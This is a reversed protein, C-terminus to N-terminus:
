VVGADFTKICEQFGNIQASEGIEVLSTRVDNILKWGCFFLAPSGARYAILRAHM